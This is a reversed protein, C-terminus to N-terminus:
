FVEGIGFYIAQSDRGMAIDLRLNTGTARSAKYRLGMGVAPLFKGDDLDGLSGAITGIGGFLVAGFSASLQQRWEVQATAMARDRYRGMEYGRLDGSQGYMCLDYFPAGKSVACVGGHIALTGSSTVPFYANASLQWTDYSFDSGLADMNFIGVLTVNVGKRPAFQNDRSDFTVSPGIGSTKSNLLNGPLNLDPFLPNERKIRSDVDMFRYRAGFYLNKAIEYQGEALIMTGRDELDVSIDRDGANAGIGYFNMNIDAYGGFLLVKFRDEDLAMSHVAGAGWSKNTTYFAGGGTVWPQKSGNPNYFLVGALTIGAGITPNSMPIPVVLLDPKMKKDASSPKAAQEDGSKGDTSLATTATVTDTAIQQVPREQAQAALPALLALPLLPFAVATTRASLFM